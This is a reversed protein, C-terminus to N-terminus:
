SDACEALFPTLQKELWSATVAGPWFGIVRGECDIFYSTPLGVIGYEAAVRGEEDLLIPFSLNEGVLFDLLVAADEQYNVGLVMLGEARHAKYYLDLSAMEARCSPCWSAWFNLLVVKGRFDDLNVIQGDLDILSFPAAVDRPVASPPTAEPVAIRTGTGQGTGCGVLTMLLLFAALARSDYLTRGKAM